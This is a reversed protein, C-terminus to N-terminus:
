RFSASNSTTSFIVADVVFVIFQFTQISFPHCVSRRFKYSGTLVLKFSEFKPRNSKQFPMIDQIACMSVNKLLGPRNSWNTSDKLITGDHRM